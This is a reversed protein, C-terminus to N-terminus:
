LIEPGGRLYAKLFLILVNANVTNMSLNNSM